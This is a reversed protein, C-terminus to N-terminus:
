RQNILRYILIATRKTLAEITNLNVTEQPTHAGNGMTGLGDLCDVYQAVFSVDAAGRRGPDYAEVEGQGLDISVENLIDLLKHNGKTPGMAPYSDIFTIEASTQPLNNNVIERMKARANEKQEESIFRLGGEVVAKQAVVNTKGFVNGKSLESDFEMLTGGLLIGPNFTLYEEGRVENYFENLIRSMEFVAGAGVNDRFIGSSHARKGKIEVKWGSSGRRAVTAYNFGTSTEFGLAIDSRKAADVLHKRSISIPKGSAEEDGTFAAIIQADNLLGNEKLAKLAYLIIVNGGKMDNGGPAHAISDNVMKFEQFPSNEEFVTDLHGILLLKKGKKGYTEAFLHGSRNVQSMDYWSSKFGIDEFAKGFVDGVEKVGDHNMTGSNINVVDKLFEIAENNNAEITKLIKKEKRTLKQAFSFQASVLFLLVVYKCLLKM